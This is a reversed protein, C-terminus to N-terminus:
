VPLDDGCKRSISMLAMERELRVRRADLATQPTFSSIRASWFREYHTTPEVAAAAAAAATTTTPFISFGFPKAAAQLVAQVRTQCAADRCYGPTTSRLRLLAQARSGLPDDPVVVLKARYNGAQFEERRARILYDIATRV